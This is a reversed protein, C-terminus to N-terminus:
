SARAVRGLLKELDDRLGAKAHMFASAPGSPHGAEIAGCIESKRKTLRVVDEIVWAKREVLLVCDRAVELRRGADDAKTRREVFDQKTLDDSGRSVVLSVDSYDHYFAMWEEFATVWAVLTEGQSDSRKNRRSLWHALLTTVAGTLVGLAVLWYDRM